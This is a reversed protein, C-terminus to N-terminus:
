RALRATGKSNFAKFFVLAEAYAISEMAEITDEDVSYIEDFFQKIAFKGFKGFILEQALGPAKE